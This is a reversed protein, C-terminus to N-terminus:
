LGAVILCLYMQAHTDCIKPLAGPLVMTIMSFVSFILLELIVEVSPTPRAFFLYCHLVSASQM